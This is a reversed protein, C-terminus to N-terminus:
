SEDPQNREPKVLLWGLKRRIENMEPPPRHQAMEQRLWERVEEKTPNLSKM